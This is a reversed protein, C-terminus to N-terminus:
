LFPLGRTRQLTYSPRVASMTRLWLPLLPSYEALAKAVLLKATAATCPFGSSSSSGSISAMAALSITPTILRWTDALFLLLGMGSEMSMRSPHPSRSSSVIVESISAPTTPHLRSSSSLSVPCHMGKGWATSRMLLTMALAASSPTGSKTILARVSTKPCPPVISSAIERPLAKMSAPAKQIKM